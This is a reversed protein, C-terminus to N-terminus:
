CLRNRHDVPLHEHAEVARGPGRQHCGQMMVVGYTVPSTCLLLVFACLLEGSGTAKKQVSRIRQEGLIKDATLCLQVLVASIDAPQLTVFRHLSLTM